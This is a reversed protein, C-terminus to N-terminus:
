ATAVPQMGKLQCAALGKCESLIENGQGTKDTCVCGIGLASEGDGGSQGCVSGSGAQAAIRKQQEWWERYQDPLRIPQGM